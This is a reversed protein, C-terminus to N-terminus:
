RYISGHERGQAQAERQAPISFGEDMGKEAQRKTSVRIYTVAMRPREAPSTVQEMSQLLLTNM